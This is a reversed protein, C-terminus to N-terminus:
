GPQEELRLTQENRYQVDEVVVLNVGIRVVKYRNKILQGETAVIIEDGDLFFAKKIGTRGQVSYGYFKLAIPPPPPKPPDVPKAAAQAVALEQPTPTPIIKPEPAPPLPAAGFQFLNREGGGMAVNQVKALLDLRLTPDATTPDVDKDRFTLRLQQSELRLSPRPRVVPAPESPLQSMAGSVADSRASAAATTRRLATVESDPALFNAHVFYGLVLLLVGLMAVKKPEAGVKVPKM